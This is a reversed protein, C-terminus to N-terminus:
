RRKGKEAAASAPPNGAASNAAATASASSSPDVGLWTDRLLNTNFSMRAAKEEITKAEALAKERRVRGPSTDEEEKPEPRKYLKKKERTARKIREDESDDSFMEEEVEKGEALLEARRNQRKRMEPSDARAGRPPRLPSAARSPFYEPLLGEPAVVGGGPSFIDEKKEFTLVSGGPVPIELTYSARLPSSSPSGSGGGAAVSSKRGQLPSGVGYVSAKRNSSGPSEVEDGGFENQTQTDDVPAAASSEDAVAAGSQTTPPVMGRLLMTLLDLNEEKPRAVWGNLEINPKWRNNMWYDLQMAKKYTEKPMCGLLIHYCKLLRHEIPNAFRHLAQALDRSVVYPKQKRGVTPLPLLMFNGAGLQFRFERRLHTGSVFEMSWIMEVLYDINMLQPRINQTFGQQWVAVSDVLDYTAERVNDILNFVEAMCPQDCVRSQIKIDRLLKDLKGRAAERATVLNILAFENQLAKSRQYFIAKKEIQRPRSSRSM